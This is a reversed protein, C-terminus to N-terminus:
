EVRSEHFVLWMAGLGALITLILLTEGLCPAGRLIVYLTVGIIMAWGPSSAQAPAIGRLLARGGLFAVVLKSGFLALFSFIAFVLGLGSAGVAMLIRALGGLTVLSILVWVVFLLVALASLGLYGAPLVLLGWGTAPLPRDQLRDALRGLLAPVQWVALGGLVLLTVFEQLRGLFWQGLQVEIRVEAAPETAASPEYVVGDEPQSHIAEEQEIPSVYTLQGEIEAEEAVRLGSPIMAPMGPWGIVPPTVEGPQSVKATVDGGISGEIELAGVDAEVDREVRGELIAQYGTMLVDRGIQSGERALLEFAAVIANHNVEAEPGLELSSCASYISGGVPGNVVMERGALVLSGDVSGNVTINAGAAVLNGNVTGNITISEGSAFLDGEVTGDIVVTEAAIFLDDEIVEGAEVIGDDDFEVAHAKPTLTLALLLVLGLALMIRSRRTRFRPM